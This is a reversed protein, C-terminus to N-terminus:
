PPPVSRRGFFFWLWLWWLWRLTSFFTSLPVKMFSVLQWRACMKCGGGLVVGFAALFASQSVHLWSRQGRLFVVGPRAPGCVSIQPYGILVDWRWVPPHSPARGHQLQLGHHDSFVAAHAVWEAERKLCVAHYQAVKAQLAADFAEPRVRGHIEKAFVQIKPAPTSPPSAFHTLSENQFVPLCVKVLHLCFFVAHTQM